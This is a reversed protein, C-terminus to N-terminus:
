ETKDKKDLFKIEHNQSDYYPIEGYLLAHEFCVKVFIELIGRIKERSQAQKDIVSM